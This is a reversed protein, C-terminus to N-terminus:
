GPKSDRWGESSLSRIFLFLHRKSKVMFVLFTFLIHFICIEWSGPFKSGSNCLDKHNYTILNMNTLGPSLETSFSRVQWLSVPLKIGPIVWLRQVCEWCSQQEPHGIGPIYSWLQPTCNGMFVFAIFHSCHPWSQPRQLYTHSCWMLRWHTSFDSQIHVICM